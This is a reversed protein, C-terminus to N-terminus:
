VLSRLDHEFDPYSVASADMGVVEVGDGSALGAVAGLMAMRHDGNADITGGRLPSGDGSVVFGDPTAEIEAGLGRLGEVVGAIRDSEKLRLEEAGRVITEGEAHAGLLGVLTLEDIALPVEDAEVVTGELPGSAVDLEGVPEEDTETGPEEFDGVIVAGMREAIRFFGTRTWNLGVGKVVVRSGSVLIAAAVIFAASSPDGPVVVRDLELEDVQAVTTRLGDREFPVRARRLMRETHDRSTSGETVSTSGGALMGAILVCSKVQASPVPLEYEIGTLEAGQVTFPPFRGDRTEVSAGMRRLPEAIRDVPRQRISEDGDLTWVGGPQGALWGPLLRMLTGANGVNLIGGTAELPAHLGVGRILLCGEREEEVAAGLTMVADLTSRTDESDLYNMVAVPEDAMAGFLAARHSISKDAPPTYNGRLPGAPDFRVTSSV